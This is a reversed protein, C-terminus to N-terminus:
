DDLMAGAIKNGLELSDASFNHQSLVSVATALVDEKKTPNGNARPRIGAAPTLGGAGFEVPADPLTNVPTKGLLAKAKEIGRKPDASDAAFAYLDAAYDDAFQHGKARLTNVHLDWGQRVLRQGADRLAKTQAAIIPEAKQKYASFDRQLASFNEALAAFEQAPEDVFRAAAEEASYAPAAEDPNGAGADGAPYPTAADPAAATGPDAPMEEGMEAGYEKAVENFKDEAGEEGASFAANVAAFKAAFEAMKQKDMCKGPMNTQGRTPTAAAAGFDLALQRAPRPQPVPRRLRARFAAPVDASFCLQNPVSYALELAPLMHLAPAEAALMAVHGIRRALGGGDQALRASLGPLRRKTLLDVAEPDVDVLDCVMLGPRGKAERYNVAAGYARSEDQPHNGAILLAPRWGSRAIAANTNRAMSRVDDRDFALPGDPTMKVANPCFVPVGEIVYRGDPQLVPERVALKDRVDPALQKWGSATRFWGARRIQALAHRHAKDRDGHDSLAAELADGFLRRVAAPATGIAEVAASAPRTPKDAVPM